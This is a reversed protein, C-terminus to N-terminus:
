HTIFVLVFPQLQALPTAAVPAKQVDGPAFIQADHLLPYVKVNYPKQMAFVIVYTQLQAFPTAAVPAEQVDDPAYIQADHLLPYM